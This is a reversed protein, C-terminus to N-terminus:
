CCFRWFLLHFRGVVDNQHRSTLKSGIKCMTRVNWKNVKFQYMSSPNSKWKLERFPLIRVTYLGPWKGCHHESRSFHGYESNKQDKNERVRLSVGYREKNLGFTPFFPGFFESYPCKERLPKKSHYEFSESDCIWFLFYFSCLFVFPFLVDCKFLTRNAPKCNVHKIRNNCYWLIM